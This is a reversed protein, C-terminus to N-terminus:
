QETSQLKFVNVASYLHEVQETLSQAAASAEETMAANRQTAEDMQGVTVNVLEIGRSQEESAAAISAMIQTVRRVSSVIEDMTKGADGVLRSGTEVMGVSTGILEKIEKAASASRQALSRVESAVVAFGRGQEGARAAEVAANLALINTQFAISDIVSTIAAIKKAADHIGSMTRVVNGVAAGGKAAIDATTTVLENAHRASELNQMITSTLKEISVVTEGLGKVQAETRSSLDSNGAAIESTAHRIAESSTHIGSVMEALRQKMEDCAALLSTNDDHAKIITMSLDGTAVAQAIARAYGPEGGLDKWISRVVYYSVMALMGLILVALLIGELLIFRVGNESGTVGASFQQQAAIRTVDLDVTLTNLSSQMQAVAVQPDGTESGMMLRAAHIAADFYNDFENNLRAGAASAGPIASFKKLNVRFKNARASVVDLAKKDNDGVASNLSEEIAHMEVQLAGSGALMPYDIDRTTRISHLAQIAVYSSLALGATFIVASLVPLSWIRRKVNM